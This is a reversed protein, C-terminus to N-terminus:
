PGGGGNLALRVTAWKAIMLPEVDDAGVIELGTVFRTQQQITPVEAPSSPLPWEYLAPVMAGDLEGKVM